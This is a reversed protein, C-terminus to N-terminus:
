RAQGTASARATCGLFEGAACVDIRDVDAANETRQTVGAQDGRTGTWSTAPTQRPRCRLDGHGLHPVQHPLVLVHEAQMSGVRGARDASRHLVRQDVQVRTDALGHPRREADHCDRIEDGFEADLAGGQDGSRVLQTM